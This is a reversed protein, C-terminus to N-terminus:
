FNKQKKRLIYKTKSGKSRDEVQELRSSYGEV